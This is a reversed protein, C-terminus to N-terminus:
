FSAAKLKIFHYTLCVRQVAKFNQKNIQLSSLPLMLFFYLLNYLETMM